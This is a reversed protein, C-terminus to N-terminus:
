QSLDLPKAALALWTKLKVSAAGDENGDSVM